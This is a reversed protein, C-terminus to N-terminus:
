SSLPNLARLVCAHKTMRLPAPAFRARLRLVAAREALWARFAFVVGRSNKSQVGAARLKDPNLARLICAYDLKTMRLPAPAFRARLRLVATREALWARFAFVV